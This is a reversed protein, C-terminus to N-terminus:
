LDATADPDRKGATRARVDLKAGAHFARHVEIAM